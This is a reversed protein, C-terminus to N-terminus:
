RSGKKNSHPRGHSKDKSKERTKKKACSPDEGDDAVCFPVSQNAPDAQTPIQGPLSACGIQSSCEDTPMSIATPQSLLSQAMINSSAITDQFSPVASPSELDAGTDSPESGIVTIPPDEPLPTQRPTETGSPSNDSSTPTGESRQKPQALEFELAQYKGIGLQDASDHITNWYAYAVFSILVTVLAGLIGWGSLSV